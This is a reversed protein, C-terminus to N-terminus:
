RQEGVEGDLQLCSLHHHPQSHRAALDAVDLRCELAQCAITLQHLHCRSREMLVLREVHKWPRLRTRYRAEEWSNSDRGGSCKTGRNGCDSLRRRKRRRRWKGGGNWHNSNRGNWRCSDMCDTRGIRLPSQLEDPVTVVVVIFYDLDLRRESLICRQLHLFLSIRLLLLHFDLVLTNRAAPDAVVGTRRLHQQRAFMLQTASRAPLSPFTLLPRAVVHLLSCPSLQIVSIIFLTLKDGQTRVALSGNNFDDM